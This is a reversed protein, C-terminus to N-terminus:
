EAADALLEVDAARRRDLTSSRWYELLAPDREVIAFVRSSVRALHRKVTALSSGLAAAIDALEMEHVYRLEFVTRQHPGLHTLLADFRSLAEKADYDLTTSVNGEPLEGDATLRLRRMRRRRLETSAVRLSIGLLFNRLACHERLQPLREFFRLFVEQVHDDIEDTGISRRLKARVLLGYRKWIARAAEADGELAARAIEADTARRYRAAAEAPDVRRPRM